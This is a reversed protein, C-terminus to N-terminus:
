PHNRCTIALSRLYVYTLRVANTRDSSYGCTFTCEFNPEQWRDTLDCLLPLHHCTLTRGGHPRSPVVMPNDGSFKKPLLLRLSVALLRVGTARYVRLRKAVSTGGGPPPPPCEVWIKAPIHWPSTFFTPRQRPSWRSIPPRRRPQM